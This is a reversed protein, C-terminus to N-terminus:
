GVIMYNKAISELNSEGETTEGTKEITSSVQEPTGRTLGRRDVGSIPSHFGCLSVGLKFVGLPLWSHTLRRWGIGM